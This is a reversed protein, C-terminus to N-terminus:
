KRGEGNSLFIFPASSKAKHGYIEGSSVFWRCTCIESIPQPGKEKIKKSPSQVYGLFPFAHTREQINNLGEKNNNM